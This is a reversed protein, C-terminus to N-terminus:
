EDEDDESEDGDDSVLPWLGLEYARNGLEELVEDVKDSGTAAFEFYIVAAALGDVFKFSEEDMEQHVMLDALDKIYNKAHIRRQLDSEWEHVDFDDNDSNNIDVKDLQLMLDALKNLEESEKSCMTQFEEEDM